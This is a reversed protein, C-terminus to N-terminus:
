GTGPLRTIHLIQLEVIRTTRGGSKASELLRQLLHIAEDINERAILIRAYIIQEFEHTLDPKGHKNFGQQELWHTALTLNDQALWARVQWATVQQVLWEPIDFEQDLQKLREISVEIETFDGRSFLVRMLCIYGWGLSLIDSGHVTLMVGNKAKLLAEDLDNLEALVEGWVVLFCGATATQSIGSAQALTLQEQCVDITDQFKGLHRSTIALKLNAIMVMYAKNVAQCARVAVVRLPYASAYDGKLSLADGLAFIATSRWISLDEPLYDLAEQANQIIAPVDGQFFCLYSRTVAMRGRVIKDGETLEGRDSTPHWNTDAAYLSREAASLQGTAILSWADFVCLNPKSHILEEPVKDLWRRLQTYEDCGWVEEAIGEILDVAQGFDQAQLAHDIAKEIIGHRKYWESARRHLAPIEVSRTQHLRQLLLDAFLHHYRYWERNQDLAIIFLNAKELNELITKSNDQGTVANCLSGSLRTLIATQLMFTQIYDPQRDLVEEILYDLVFRHSGSFSRIQESVKERGQLSLTNQLALAALQLGAIWGETRAELTEIDDASLNLGMAQNLFEAAESSTFRLDAARLETLQGRARLRALPLLPDDRTAIVLHMQGPLHDILYTLAKDIASTQITHYDDLILIIRGPLSTIENILTILIDEVPTPQPTHLIDLASSGIDQYTQRFAVILYNLFRSLDNDSEDLSLWVANSTTQKDHNSQRHLSAVWESILATKGFGAPASILTLKHHPITGLQKTLRVRSVHEPRLTPVFFKTSLLQKM